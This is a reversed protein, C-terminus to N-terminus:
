RRQKIIFVAKKNEIEQEDKELFLCDVAGINNKFLALQKLEL